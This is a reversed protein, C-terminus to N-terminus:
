LMPLYRRVYSMELAKSVSQHWGYLLADIKTGGAPLTASITATERTGTDLRVLEVMVSGGAAGTFIALYPADAVPAAFASGITTTTGDRSAPVFGADPVTSSYRLGVFHGSPTDSDAITTSCLGIYLRRAGITSPLKFAIVVVFGEATDALRSAQYWGCSTTSTLRVWRANSQSGGSGSVSLNAWGDQTLSGASAVSRSIHYGDHAALEDIGYLLNAGLKVLGDAARSASANLAAASGLAAELAYAPHPDGAAVHAALEADSCADTIGYGALTTPTGTIEGWATSGAAADVTLELRGDVLATGFTVSSGAVFVLERAVYPGGGEIRISTPRPVRADAM